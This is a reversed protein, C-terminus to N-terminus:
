LREKKAEDIHEPCFEGIWGPGCRWGVSQALKRVYDVVELCLAELNPEKNWMFTAQCGESDCKLTIRAKMKYSM